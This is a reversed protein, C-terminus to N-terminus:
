LEAAKAATADDAEKKAKADIAAKKNAEMQKKNEAQEEPTPPPCMPCITFGERDGMQGRYLKVIDDEVFEMMDHCVRLWMPTIWAGKLVGYHDVVQRHRENGFKIEVNGTKTNKLMGMHLRNSECIDDVAAEIHYDKLPVPEDNRLGELALLLEYAASQCAACKLKKNDEPNRHDPMGPLDDVGIPQSAKHMRKKYAAESEETAQAHSPAAGSDLVEDEARVVLASVLFLCLVTFARM